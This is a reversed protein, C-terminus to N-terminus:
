PYFFDFPTVKSSWHSTGMRSPQRVWASGAWTTPTTSERTEQQSCIWCGRWPTTQITGSCTGTSWGRGTGWGTGRGCWAVAWVSCCWRQARLPVSTTGLWWWVAETQSAQRQLAPLTLYFMCKSHPSKKITYYLQITTYLCYLIQLYWALLHLLVCVSLYVCM